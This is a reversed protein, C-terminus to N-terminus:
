DSTTAAVIPRMSDWGDRSIEAIVDELWAIEALALRAVKDMMVRPLGGTGADAVTEREAERAEAVFAELADRRRRVM